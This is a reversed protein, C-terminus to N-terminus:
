GIAALKSSETKLAAAWRQAAQRAQADAGKTAETLAIQRAAALNAKMYQLWQMDFATGKASTLQNLHSSSLSGTVTGAAPAQRGWDSLWTTLTRVSPGADKTIQNALGRLQANIGSTGAAASMSLAQQRLVVAQKAFTMDANNHHDASQTATTAGQSTSTSPNAATTTSPPASVSSSVAPGFSTSDGAGPPASKEANVCGTLGLVTATLLVAAATGRIATTRV